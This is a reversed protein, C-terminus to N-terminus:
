LLAAIAPITLVSLLTTLVIIRALTDAEAELGREKACMLPLNAAPMAVLLGATNRILPDSVVARLAAIICFPLILLRLVAFLYDKPHAFLERLPRQAISVGLALMSLFTTARGLHTLTDSVAAPIPFDCLYFFVTLLASVTGVNFFGAAGKGGKASDGARKRILAMGSTYFLLNYVLCNISVYILAGEGLVASVLPIGMFGVNGYVTLLHYLFREKQPIGLLLPFLWGAALLVAYISATVALATLLKPLPAKPSDGFASCLLLAPNCVNVVLASIQRSGEETIKKGRFLGYGILILLLMVIMQSLVTLVNM